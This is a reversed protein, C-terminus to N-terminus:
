YQFLGSLSENMHIRKIADGFNRKVSRVKIKDKYEDIWERPRPITDTVVVGDLYEDDMLLGEAPSGDSSPAFIGHSGFGYVRSAGHKTKLRKAGKRMSGGTSYQDDPMLVVKGEVDGAFKHSEVDDGSIRKKWIFGMGGANIISACKETYKTGGADASVVVIDKGTYGMEECWAKFVPLAELVDFNIRYAAQIQPAHLHMTLIRDAGVAELTKAVTQVTLPVRSKDKWDARQFGLYTPVVTLRGASAGKITDSMILNEAYRLMPDPYYPSILFADAGRISNAIHVHLEGDPHYKRETEIYEAGANYETNIYDVVGRAFGEGTENSLIVLRNNKM